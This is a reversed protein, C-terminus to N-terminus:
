KSVQWGTVDKRVGEGSAARVFGRIAGAVHLVSGARFDLGEAMSALALDALM